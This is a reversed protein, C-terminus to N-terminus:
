RNRRQWDDRCDNSCWRMEEGVKDGCNLCMGVPKTGYHRRARDRAEEVAADAIRQAFEYQWEDM